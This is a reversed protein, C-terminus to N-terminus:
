QALACPTTSISRSVINSSPQHNQRVLQLIARHVQRLAARQLQLSIHAAEEDVALAAERHPGPFVVELFGKM